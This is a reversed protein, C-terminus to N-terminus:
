LFEKEKYDRNRLSQNPVMVHPFLTFEIQSGGSKAVGGKFGPYCVYTVSIDAGDRFGHCRLMKYREVIALSYSSSSSLMAYVLVNVLTSQIQIKLSQSQTQMSHCEANSQYEIRVCQYEAM